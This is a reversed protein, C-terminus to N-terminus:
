DVKKFVFVDETVLLEEEFREMFSPDKYMPEDPVFVEQYTYVSEKEILYKLGDIHYHHILLYDSKEEYSPLDEEEKNKLSRMKLVEVYNNEYLLLIYDDEIILDVLEGFIDKIEYIINGDLDEIRDENYYYLDYGDIYYDFYYNELDEHLIASVNVFSSPEEVHAQPVFEEPLDGNVFIEGDSTQIFIVQDSDYVRVDIIDEELMSTDVEKMLQMDIPGDKDEFVNTFGSVFLRGVSEEILVYSTSLHIDEIKSAGKLEILRIRYDYLRQESGFLNPQHEDGYGYLEGDKTLFLISGYNAQIKKLDEKPFPINIRKSVLKEENELVVILDHESTYLYFGDRKAYLKVITEDEQLGFDVDLNSFYSSGEEKYFDKFVEHRYVQTENYAYITDMYHSMDNFYEGSEVVEYILYEEPEWKIYYTSTEKRPTDIVGVYSELDKYLVEKAKPAFLRRSRLMADIAANIFGFKDMELYLETFDEDYYLGELTYGERFDIRVKTRSNTSTLVQEEEFVPDILTAEREVNCGGLFVALCISVFMLFRKYM